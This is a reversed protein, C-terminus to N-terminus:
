DPDLLEIRVRKGLAWAFVDLTRMTLIPVSLRGSINARTTGIRRALDNHSLLQDAIAREIAHLAQEGASHTEVPLPKSVGASTDMCGSGNTMFTWARRIFLFIPARGYNRSGTRKRIWRGFNSCMPRASNPDWKALLRASSTDNLTATSHAATARALPRFDDAGFSDVGTGKRTPRASLSRARGAIKTTQSADARFPHRGRNLLQRVTEDISYTDAYAGAEELILVLPGHPETAQVHEALELLRLYDGELEPRFILVFPQWRCQLFAAAAERFNYAYIAEDAPVDYEFQRDLVIARATRRILARVLATKGSGSRGVILTHGNKM